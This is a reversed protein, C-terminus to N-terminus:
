EDAKLGHVQLRRYLASRSLGLAKAADSVNGGARTLARQILHREAQELTMELLAPEGRGGDLALDEVEVTPERALLLAREVVHELERVNGPWRHELLAQMARPSFTHVTQGHRAALRAAFRAVLPAIDERRERLPPLHIEVTNIRYLLDERFRGATIEKRLDGNTAALLRVDARRVRSSGVPHFEGTELVRLLKAQQGLPMNAIEDLFLTGGEALEFCGARDTRADTFAGKVHGFVESEFVGESVGGANVAVFPRGARGSAAHIWRAVVEKGTGHEGTILVHASAPAVRRMLQLVPDMARSDAVLEPLARARSRSTEDELRRSRRLVQGLEIQTRMVHVLRQNDWPKQVYDRAGRRMAQVAGEISGWATMVVIPLSADLSELRALLDLGEGGSTTDRTYNLDILVADLDQKEAIALVEAPSTATVVDYGAHKFLLRLAELVDIRDDALLIRTAAPVDAQRVV